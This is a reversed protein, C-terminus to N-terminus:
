LKIEYIIWSVSERTIADSNNGGTTHKMQWSVYINGSNSSLTNGTYSIIKTWEGSRTGGGEANKYQLPNGSGEYIYSSAVSSSTDAIIRAEYKDDFTTGSSITYIVSLM